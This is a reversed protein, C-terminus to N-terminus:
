GLDFVILEADSVGQLEIQREDSLAAGDGANLHQGNLEIAGRALQVWAHRGTGLEHSVRQEPALLTAYIEADQHITVSGLRADRSAVLRLRGSREERSFQRQEYSPPLGRTEPVIWIQLFHVPATRSANYESHTVGLGASMRQVDGSRIISGNGMSDKHELEGSLVYSIIEMDRHAHRPFGAGPSVQDENIVRLTRFGMHRPDYHEAFSFSHRSDLWDIKTHFREEARRLTLM